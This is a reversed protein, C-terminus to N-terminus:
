AKVMRGDPRKSKADALVSAIENTMESTDKSTYRQIYITITYMKLWLVLSKVSKEM